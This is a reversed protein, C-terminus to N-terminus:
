TSIPRLRGFAARAPRTARAVARRGMGPVLPKLIEVIEAPTKDWRIGAQGNRVWQLKAGLGGFNQSKLTVLGSEFRLGTCDLKAGTESLDLITCAHGQGAVELTAPWMVNWRRRIRRDPRQTSM